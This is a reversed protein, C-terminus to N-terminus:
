PSILVGTRSLFFETKPHSRKHVKAWDFIPKKSCLLESTIVAAWRLTWAADRTRWDLPLLLFVPTKKM